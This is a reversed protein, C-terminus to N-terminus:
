SEVTRRAINWEPDSQALRESSGSPGVVAAHKATQFSEAAPARDFRRKAAAIDGPRDIEQWDAGAIDFASIGIAFDEILARVVHFYYDKPDNFGGRIQRDLTEAFAAAARGSLKLMGAYIGDFDVLNEDFRMVNGASVVVNIERSDRMSSDFAMLTPPEAAFLAAALRDSLVLDAHIVMVPGDFSARAFWLSADIGTVDFFPNLIITANGVVPAVVESGYGLVVHIDAAPDIARIQRLLRGILPEGGIEIMCKPLGGLADGMRRGVGAAPILYRM